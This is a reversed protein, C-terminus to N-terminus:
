EERKGHKRTTKLFPSVIYGLGQVRSARAGAGVRHPSLNYAHMVMSLEAQLKRLLM